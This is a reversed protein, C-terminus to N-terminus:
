GRLAELPPVRAARRSPLYSAAVAVATLLVVAAGISWPDAPNVGYLLGAVLQALLVSVGVGLVLGIATLKVCAMMVERRVRTPEAGLAMRLGIETTRQAVTYGFVGHIGVVVLILTLASFLGLLQAGTRAPWLTQELVQEMTTGQGVSIARDLDRVATTATTLLPGPDGATRVQVTVGPAYVQALPVYVFPQRPAEGLQNVDVDRVIGVVERRVPDNFFAVRRGIADEGPWFREAFAENIVAVPTSDARDTDAFDRGRVFPIRLAEFFGPMTSASNVFIGQAESSALMEETFISRVQSGGLPFSSSLTAAEVGPLARLQDLAARFFVVGREQPYEREPLNVGFALLRRSEFGPDIENARQLSRLFLGAGTVAVVALTVEVVVLGGLLRHTTADGHGSRGAARLVQSLDVRTARWAPVLGFLLAAGTAVGGTFAFVRWDFALDVADPPFFPPRMSWLWATGWHAILLGVVAGAGALVLSETLLQRILRGRDAGMAVGVTMEARRTAARALLLSVLNVCAVLLVVGVVTMLLSGAQLFQGRQNIGVANEALPRLVFSRSGNDMPYERALREGIASVAAQAQLMSVGDKLRGFPQAVVARRLRFINRFLGATVEQYVGTTIWVRDPSALTSTGKFGAPTVGVVTFPTNNLTITQGVVSPNEGFQRSWYSFSLIVARQGTGVIDEEPLFDRGLFPQVGLVDFYNATVMQATVPQPGDDTTLSLGVGTAAAIGDFQDRTADRIDELNLYSVGLFGFGSQQNQSDSTFLGVLRDVQPLPLPRLLVANVISFIATNAGIGLGLTIIAAIAIGPQGVWQRLALRIDRLMSMFTSSRETVRRRATRLRVARHVRM